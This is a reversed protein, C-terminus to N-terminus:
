KTRETQLEENLGQLWAGSNSIQLILEFIGCRGQHSWGLSYYSINKHLTKCM